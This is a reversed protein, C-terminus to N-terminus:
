GKLVGSRAVDQSLSCFNDNRAGFYLVRLLDRDAKHRRDILEFTLLGGADDDERKPLPIVNQAARMATCCVPRGRCAETEYKM